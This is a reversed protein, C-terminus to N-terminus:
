RTANTSGPGAAVAPLDALVCPGEVDGDGDRLVAGVVEDDGVLDLVPAVGRGVLDLVDEQGAIREADHVQLRFGDGVLIQEAEQGTPGLGDGAAEGGEGDSGGGSGPRHNRM